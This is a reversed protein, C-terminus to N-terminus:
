HIGITSVPSSKGLGVQGAYEPTPGWSHWLAINPKPQVAWWSDILSANPQTGLAGNTAPAKRAKGPFKAGSLAVLKRRTVILADLDESAKTAPCAHVAEGPMSVRSPLTLDQGGVPLTDLDAALAGM